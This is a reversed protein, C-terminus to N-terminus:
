LQFCLEFIKKLFKAKQKGQFIAKTATYHSQIIVYQYDFLIGKNLHVKSM